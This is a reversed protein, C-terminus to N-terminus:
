AILDSPDPMDDSVGTEQSYAGRWVGLGPMVEEIRGRRQEYWYRYLSVSHQQLTQWQKKTVFGAHRIEDLLPDTVARRYRVVVPVTDDDILRGARAVTEFDGAERKDTIGKTDLGRRRVTQYLERFYREVTEPHALSEGAEAMITNAVEMEIRYVGSPASGDVPVFVVTEGLDPHLKGERNCRGAAQIVRDLPGLARLVLPFDLNVGAEVLQTSVVRCPQKDKLRRRIEALRDRRHAPCMFTSLHFAGDGLMEYVERADRRSNVVCLSQECRQMEDAVRQCSWPDTEVRYQVRTLADFHREYDPVIEVADELGSLYPSSTSLAPQTATSLVVTVGYHQVLEKLVDLIPQVMGVPLTQVEDLIIVSDAINHLKRCRAPKNSFLSDFLQVTTTVILPADWNEAALEARLHKETYTKADVLPVASHHELVAHHGVMKRYEKANEDIISTYPIAVVVRRLRHEVAHKLAFAMGSRTKGGGTPVTLRFVGQPADGAVRCAQYVENRIRNVWTDDAKAVFREQSVQFRRWLECINPYRGRAQAKAPYWHEETNIFDADVLCSFLMRILFEISLNSTAYPPLAAAQGPLGALVSRVQAVIKSFGQLLRARNFGDEIATSDPMGGHHGLIPIAVVGADDGLLLAQAVGALKHDVAGRPPRKGAQKAEHCEWLYRQFGGSGKGVDHLLGVLRGLEGAGFVGAFEAALESVELLHCELRHWEGTGNPTHACLDTATM